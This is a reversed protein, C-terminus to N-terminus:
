KIGLVPCTLKETFSAEPMDSNENKVSSCSVVIDCLM